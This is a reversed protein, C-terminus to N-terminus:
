EQKPEMNREIFDSQEYWINVIQLFRKNGIIRRFEMTHRFREVSISTRLNQIKKFLELCKKGDFDSKHSEIELELILKRSEQTWDITKTMAAKYDADMLQSEEKTISLEEIYYADTWWRYLPYKGIEKIDKEAAPAIGSQAFVIMAAFLIFLIKKTM